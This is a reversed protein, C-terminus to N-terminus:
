LAGGEPRLRARSCAARYRPLVGNWGGLNVERWGPGRSGLREWGRHEIEVRTTADGQELFNIEVETADARDDRIHWLYALRSPPEWATIEGWEVETGAPTREFIRGGLLPQFVVELGPEASVTHTVPWWSSTRATWVSFAHAAPCDVVFSIRLPEIM